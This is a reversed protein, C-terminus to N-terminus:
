DGGYCMIASVIIFIICVIGFIIKDIAEEDEKICMFSLLFCIVEIVIIM